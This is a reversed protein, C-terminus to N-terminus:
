DEKRETIETRRMYIQKIGKYIVCIIYGLGAYGLYTYVTGILDTFPLLGLAFALAAICGAFIYSRRSGQRTFKQGVTWLM